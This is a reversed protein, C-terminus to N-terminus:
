LEYGELSYMSGYLELCGIFLSLFDEIQGKVSFANKWTYSSLKINKIVNNFVTKTIPQLESQSIHHSSMM